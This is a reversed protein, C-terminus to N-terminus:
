SFIAAFSAKIFVWVLWVGVIIGVAKGTSLRKPNTAAFGIALLVLTWIWFLEVSSGVSQLWKPADEPLFSYVSTAIMNRPDVDGYSRLWIVIMTIPVSVLEVMQVHGAISMATKFNTGAGGLTNFVLLYIAGMIVAGLIAGCAGAAYTGYVTWKAQTEVIDALREPPIDAGRPSSEIQQRIFAKWDIRQNMTYTFAIGLVTSILVPTIWKPKRVIDAFTAGPNTLVGIVRGWDSIKQQPQDAAAAVASTSM